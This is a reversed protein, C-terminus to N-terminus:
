NYIYVCVGYLYQRYSDCCSVCRVDRNKIIRFKKREFCAYIDAKSHGPDLYIEEINTSVESCELARAYDYTFSKELNSYVEQATAYNPPNQLASYNTVNCALKPSNNDISNEELFLMSVPQTSKYNINSYESSLLAAQDTLEM